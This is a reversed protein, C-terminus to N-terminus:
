ATIHGEYVVRKYNEKLHKKFMRLGDKGYYNGLKSKGGKYFRFSYMREIHSYIYDRVISLRTQRRKHPPFYVFEKKGTKRFKFFNFIYQKNIYVSKVFIRGMNHPLKFIVLKRIVGDMMKEHYDAVINMLTRYDLKLSDDSCIRQYLWYIEKNGVKYDEEDIYEKKNARKYVRYKRNVIM